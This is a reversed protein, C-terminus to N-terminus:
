NKKKKIIAPMVGFCLLLITTPEPIAHPIEKLGFSQGVRMDASTTIVIDGSTYGPMFWDGDAVGQDNNDTFTLEKAMGNYGSYNSYTVTELQGGDPVHTDDFGALPNLFGTILHMDYSVWTAGTRNVVREDRIVINSVANESVKVFDIIIPYYFGQENPQDYFLKDIEIFISDETTGYVYLAEIDGVNGVTSDIEVAWGSNDLDISIIEGFAPLCFLALIILLLKKTKM